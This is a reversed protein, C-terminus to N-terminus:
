EEHRVFASSEEKRGLGQMESSVRDLFKAWKPLVEEPLYRRAIEDGREGLRSRLQEGGDEYLLEKLCKVLSITSYPDFYVAADAYVERHVDIDSAAVVGGSQMAEVGSFDFGEGLSPCVTVAAHRYLVRLDPAPVSALMFVEGRDIWSQLTPILGSYDWGLSGVIVLKLNPDTDAKLVEWAALLRAHNKRPEITSVILLYRLPLKELSKRYFNEQEKVSFFDPILKANNDPDGLYLRSRIIGAVRGIPSDEKFYHHSVMNHITVARPAAAPFLSILHKRTAESVCAFYAGSRVNNGLAYFHTAQHLSKDSITHPMLVPIADHYRVVLATSRTVNAPYPTQAIFIDIGKTELRSYIPRPFINLSMLGVLHMTTWPTSCIKHNASTVLHFDSAPLTKAFLSRWVFDEFHTTKFISLKVKSLRFLTGLSLRVTLARRELWDTLKDLITRYPKEALSIIVRSYKNVKRAESIQLCRFLAGGEYTGKSLVANSSQILGEVALGDLMRLGRFLLRTEQPIGAFGDLAPRLELLVRTQREITYRADRPAM